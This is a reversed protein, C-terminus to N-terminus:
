LYKCPWFVKIGVSWGNYRASPIPYFLKRQECDENMAEILVV